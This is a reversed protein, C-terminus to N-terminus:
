SIHSKADDHRGIETRGRPVVRRGSCTNENFKIQINNFTQRSFEHKMLIEWSYRTSLKFVNIIIDRQFRRITLFTESLFNELFDFWVCKIKVTEGHM